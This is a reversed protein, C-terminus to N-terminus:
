KNEKIFKETATRIVWNLGKRDILPFKSWSALYYRPCQILIRSGEIVVKINIKLNGLDELQRDPSPSKRRKKRSITAADLNRWDPEKNNMRYFILDELLDRVLNIYIEIEENSLEVPLYRQWKISRDSTEGKHGRGKKVYSDKWM